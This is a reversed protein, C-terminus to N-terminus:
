GNINVLQHTLYSCVRLHWYLMYADLIFALVKMANQSSRFSLLRPHSMYLLVRAIRQSVKGIEPTCVRLSFLHCVEGSIISLRGIRLTLLCM